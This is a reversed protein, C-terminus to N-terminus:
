IQGVLADQGTQTLIWCCCGVIVEACICDVRTMHYGSYLMHVSKYLQETVEQHEQIAHDVQADGDDLKQRMAPYLVVEEKGSHQVLQNIILHAKALKVDSDNTTQYESLSFSLLGRHYILPQHADKQKSRMNKRMETAHQGKYLTKVAEHEMIVIKSVPLGAKLSAATGGM